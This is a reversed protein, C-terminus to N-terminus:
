PAANRQAPSCAHRILQELLLVQRLAINTQPPPLQATSQLPPALVQRSAVSCHPKFSLRAHPLEDDTAATGASADVHAHM